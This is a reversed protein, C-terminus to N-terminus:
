EGVYWLVGGVRGPRRYYCDSWAGYVQSARDFPRNFCTNEDELMKYLEDIKDGKKALPWDASPSFFRPKRESAKDLSMEEVQVHKAQLFLSNIEHGELVSIDAELNMLWKRRELREVPEAAM